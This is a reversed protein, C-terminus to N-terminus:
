KVQVFGMHPGSPLSKIGGTCWASATGTMLPTVAPNRFWSILARRYVMSAAMKSSPVSGTEPLIVLLPRDQPVALLM